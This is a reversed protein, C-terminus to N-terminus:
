NLLSFYPSHPSVFYLGAQVAMIAGGPWSLSIWLTAKASVMEGNYIVM